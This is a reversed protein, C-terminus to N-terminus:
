LAVSAGSRDDTVSMINQKLMAVEGAPVDRANGVHSIHESKGAISRESQFTERCAVCTERAEDKSESREPQFTEATVSMSEMNKSAKEKLPSMEDQFTVAM